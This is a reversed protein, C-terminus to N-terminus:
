FGAIAKNSSRDIYARMGEPAKYLKVFEGDHVCSLASVADEDIKGDGIVTDITLYGVGLSTINQFFHTGQSPEIRYGPIATEVIIKAESIDSWVVPIGLWPDSSGWRGPGILMYGSGEEKLIRNLESIETAIDRTRASDFSGGPIYMIYKMGEVYGAGLAKSSSVLIESM